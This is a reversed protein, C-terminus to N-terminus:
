VLKNTTESTTKKTTTHPRANHNCNSKGRNHWRHNHVNVQIFSENEILLLTNNNVFPHKLVSGMGGRPNTIDRTLDLLNLHAFSVARM